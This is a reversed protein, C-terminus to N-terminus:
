IVLWRQISKLAKRANRGIEFFIEDEDFIETQDTMPTFEEIRM